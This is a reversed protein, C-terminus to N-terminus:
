VKPALIHNTKLATFWLLEFYHQMADLLGRNKSWLIPSNALGEEPNVMLMVSKRDYMSLVTKPPSSIFRLECMPIKKLVNQVVRSNVEKSPEETVFRCKVDKSWFEKLLDSFSVLHSFIKWSSVIEISDKAGEVAEKIREIVSDSGPILVFEPEDLGLDKDNAKFKKILSDTKSELSKTKQKRRRLLISTGNNLPLAKFEIPRSIVTEILGLEKLDDAIRYVDQRPVNAFKSVTKVDLNGFHCLALYVKAQCLTLGLEILVDIEEQQLM